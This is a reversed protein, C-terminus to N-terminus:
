QILLLCIIPAFAQRQERHLRRIQREMPVGVKQSMDGAGEPQSQWISCLYNAGQTGNTLRGACYRAGRPRAEKNERAAGNV